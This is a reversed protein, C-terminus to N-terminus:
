HAATEHIQVANWKPLGTVPTGKPVWINGTVSGASVNVADCKNFNLNLSGSGVSIDAKGALSLKMDIMTLGSSIRLNNAELEGKLNAMGASININKNRPLTLTYNVTMEKGFSKRQELIITKGNNKVVIPNKDVGDYTLDSIEFKDDSTKFTINTTGDLKLIVEELNKDVKIDSGAFANMCMLMMFSISVWFGKGRRM